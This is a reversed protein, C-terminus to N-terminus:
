DTRYTYITKTRTDGSLNKLTDLHIQPSFVFEQDIGIIPSPAGATAIELILDVEEKHWAFPISFPYQEYLSRMHAPFDTERLLRNILKASQPGIETVYHAYNFPQIDKALARAFDTSSGEGHEEGLLFFNSSAAENRLFEAGNGELGEGRLSLNYHNEKLVDSLTTM